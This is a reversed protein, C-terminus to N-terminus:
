QSRALSVRRTGRDQWAGCRVCREVAVVTEGNLREYPQWRHGKRLCRVRHRLHRIQKKSGGDM